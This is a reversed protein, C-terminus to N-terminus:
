QGGGVGVSITNSMLTGAFCGAGYQNHYTVTVDYRARPLPARLWPALELDAAHTEGPQLGIFGFGQPGPDIKGAGSVPVPTGDARVIAFSFFVPLPEFRDLLNITHQSRNAFIVRFSLPGQRSQLTLELGTDTM